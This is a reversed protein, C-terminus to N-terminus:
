KEEWNILSAYYPTIRMPHRETVQRLRRGQDRTLHMRKKLQDVTCISQRLEKQWDM